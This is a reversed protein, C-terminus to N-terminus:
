LQIYHNEIKIYKLIVNVNEQLQLAPNRKTNNHKNLFCQKNDGM